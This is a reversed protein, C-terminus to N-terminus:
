EAPISFSFGMYSQAQFNAANAGVASFNTITGTDLSLCEEIIEKTLVVWQTQTGAISTFGHIVTTSSNNFWMTGGPAALLITQRGPHTVLVYAMSNGSDINGATVCQGLTLM